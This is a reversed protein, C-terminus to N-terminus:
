SNILSEQKNKCEDLTGRFVINLAWKDHDKNYIGYTYSTGDYKRIRFVFYEM